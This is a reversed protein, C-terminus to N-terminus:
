IVLKEAYIYHKQFLVIRNTKNLEIVGTEYKSLTQYSYLTLQSLERLSLRLHKRQDIILKTLNFDININKDSM